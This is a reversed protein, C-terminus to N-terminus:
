VSGIGYDKLLKEPFYIYEVLMGPRKKKPCGRPPPDKQPRFPRFHSYEFFRILGFISYRIYTNSIGM